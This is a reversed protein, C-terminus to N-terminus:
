KSRGILFSAAFIGLMVCVYIGYFVRWVKAGIRVGGIYFATGLAPNSLACAVFVVAAFLMILGIIRLILKQNM